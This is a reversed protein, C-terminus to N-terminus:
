ILNIVSQLISYHVLNLFQKQKIQEILHEIYKITEGAEKIIYWDVVNDFYGYVCSLLDIEVAPQIYNVSDMYIIIMYKDITFCYNGHVDQYFGNPLNNKIEEMLKEANM